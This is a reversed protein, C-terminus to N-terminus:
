SKKYFLELKSTQSTGYSTELLGKKHKTVSFRADEFFCTIDADKYKLKNKWSFPLLAQLLKLLAPRPLHTPTPTPTIFLPLHFTHFNMSLEHCEKTLFHVNAKLKVMFKLHFSYVM